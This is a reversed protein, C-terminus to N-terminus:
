KLVLTCAFFLQCILIEAGCNKLDTLDIFFAGLQKESMKTSKGRGM